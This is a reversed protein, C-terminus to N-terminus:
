FEFNLGITYNKLTPYGSNTDTVLGQGAEPDWGDWDTITFLNTGSVYVRARNIGVKKLLHKPLNYSLSIEQLRIFSRSVYPSFNEGLAQTFYGLQRYRANPNEPTWYDFEYFSNLTMRDPNIVSSAPQGLYHNKGGQVSNIFVKLEFDKYRFNNIISFRYKPDAYGIIKRDDNAKYAGDKNIDEVKYTGYKFGNPVEGRNWEDLQWMGIINYDYCTNLPKGIFIKNSILDDERGDGDADIGLISVVENKNTSFNGTITWEFDKTRVPVGTISFEHGINRLKGINTPIKSQFLGNMFPVNIDYLLDKTNSVYFEYNGYLRSNFLSFDIGVNFSSTTEWKLDPNSMVSVASTTQGTGGDGFVYGGLYSTNLRNSVRAQTAYRGSTRNGSMGYSLRLKLNDLYKINDKIFDEESLRWAVAASPFYGFKHNEGFGSFGDRRITGTFIYRDKFTYGLRLMMYLSTEQWASTTITNMDAQGGQLYDYGLSKDSFNKAVADTSEFTRKEVGYVFTGNIAHKGFKGQYSLINDFSWENTSENKKEGSGLLSAGYPDFLYYKYAQLSNSYNARYTLGKVPLKVEAFFNGSLLYRKELNEKNRNLLPNIAGNYITERLTTGDEEYPSVVAPITILSEFNNAVGSLDGVSFFSQTGVKLWDTLNVNLNVRANYRRYTDDKILNQQDTYGFSVFYNSRENSGRINLNHNMVYPTPNTLLDWWDTNTGNLYGSTADESRFKTSPDFDPNMQLMDAGIRSEDLYVNSVQRLYGDRDVRKLKGNILSQFSFSGSYELIPKTPSKVSKTTIMLVGNAAQSGYIAASSADKLVDISEIDSPNIDNINGRYIVGDLVILPKTSGSISNQGRISFEPEGGAKTAVGINLGPVVGKLSQVMNVTPSNELAKLDARVVSGTLDSKKQTGYGVVVVEDLAQSDEKLVISLMKGTVAQVEQSKYGIYTVILTAGSKVSLSFNGDIDTITGNTPNGKEVVSAGIVPGMADNVTGKVTIQQQIIQVATTSEEAWTALPHGVVFGSCLLLAATAKRSFRFSDSKM